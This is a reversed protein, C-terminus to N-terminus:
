FYIKTILLIFLIQTVEEKYYGLCASTQPDPHTEQVTRDNNSESLSDNECGLLELQPISKELVSSSVGEAM